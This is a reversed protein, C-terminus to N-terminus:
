RLDMLTCLSEMTAVADDVNDVITDKINEPTALYDTIGSYEAFFVKSTDIMVLKLDYPTKKCLLSDIIVHQINTPPMGCDGTILIHPVKTLDMVLPQGDAQVGFAIPLEMEANRFADTSVAANFMVYKQNKVPIEVGITGKGPIPCIIRCDGTKLSYALVNAIDDVITKVKSVQTGREPFVEWFSVVPGPSVKM